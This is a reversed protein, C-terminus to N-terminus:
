ADGRWDPTPSWPEPHEAAATGGGRRDFVVRVPAWASFDAVPTFAMDLLLANTLLFGRVLTSGFATEYHHAVPFEEYVRKVWDATVGECDAGDVVIADLDVDSWRDARGAGTSGTIVAAEIRPDGELLGVARELTAHRDATTFIPM